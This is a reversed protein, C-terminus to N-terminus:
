HYLYGANRTFQPNFSKREDKHSTIKVASKREAEVKQELDAPLKDAYKNLLQKHEVTQNQSLVPINHEIMVDLQNMMRNIEPSQLDRPHESNNVTKNFHCIYNKIDQPTLDSYESANYQFLKLESCINEEVEAVSSCEELPGQTYDFGLLKAGFKKEILDVRKQPAMCDVSYDPHAEDYEIKAPDNAEWFIGKLKQGNVAENLNNLEKEVYALMSKGTLKDSYGKKRVIYEILGCNSAGGIDAIAFGLVEPNISNLNRGFCTYIHQGKKPGDELNKIWVSVDEQETPIPFTECYLGDHMNTLLIKAKMIAARDGSEFVKGFDVFEIDPSEAGEFKKAFNAM